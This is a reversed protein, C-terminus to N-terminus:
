VETHIWRASISIFNVQNDESDDRKAAYLKSPKNPGLFHLM